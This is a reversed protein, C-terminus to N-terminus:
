WHRPLLSASLAILLKRFFFFLFRWSRVGCSMYSSLFAASFTREPAIPDERAAIIKSFLSASVSSSRATRELDILFMVSVRLSDRWSRASALLSSNYRLSNLSFMISLAGIPIEVTSSNKLTLYQFLAISVIVDIFLVSAKSLD